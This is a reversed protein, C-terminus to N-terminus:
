GRGFWSRGRGSWHDVLKTRQAPTLVDAADTLAQALRKSVTEGLALHEVRLQEILAHDVKEAKLAAQLKGKAAAHASQLPALDRVAAKMIDSVKAKQETTADVRGLIRGLGYDARKILTESDVPAGHMAGFRWPHSTARGIGFGILGILLLFLLGLIRGRGRCARGCGRPGAGTGSPSPAATGTAPSTPSPTDSM